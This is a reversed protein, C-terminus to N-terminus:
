KSLSTAIKEISDEANTVIRFEVRQSALYDIENNSEDKYIPKSSSLGNATIHEKIWSSSNNLVPMKLIYELTARTRSQSLEMNKFYADEESIGSWIPSTHGEIRIEKVTSKFKDSTIIEIYRPIFNDLIQKFGPKLESKGTDFIVDPNNFRLTMDGLFDADWQKLDQKFTEQLARLLEAKTKTHEQVILTTTQEVRLMYMATLLMFIMMLGTMLDSLPIWHSQSSSDFNEM